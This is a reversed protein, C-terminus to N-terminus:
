RSWAPRRKGLFAAMGERGEEAARSLAAQEVTFDREEEPSRALVGRVLEKCWGQAGVAGERLADLTRQVEADLDEALAHVMGIRFAERAGFRSGTLFRARAESPGIRRIAFPAIVAPILGLRVETFGFVAGPGAVAIDAACVLGSGGALAPGHVRAVVPKPCRDLAEFLEALRGAAARNEELTARGMAQMWELDAGASFSAGAGELLLIHVGPDTALRRVAALLEQIVADNFANHREPRNLLVRGVSHEVSLELNPM